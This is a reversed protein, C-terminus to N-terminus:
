YVPQPFTRKWVLWTFTMYVVGGFLARLYTFTPSNTIPTFDFPIATGTDSWQGSNVDVTMLPINVTGAMAGGSGVGNTDDRPSIAPRAGHWHPAIQKLRDATTDWGGPPAQGALLTPIDTSTDPPAPTTLSNPTFTTGFGQVYTVPGWNVFCQVNQEMESAGAPDPSWLDHVGQQFVTNLNTSTMGLQQQLQGLGTRLLNTLVPGNLQSAAMAVQNAYSIVESLWGSPIGISGIGPIGISLDGPLNPTTSTGVITGGVTYTVEGLPGYVGGSVSTVMVWVAYIGPGDSSSPSLFTSANYAGSTSVCNGSAGFAGIYYSGPGCTDFGPLSYSSSAGTSENLVFLQVSQAPDTGNESVSVAVTLVANSTSPTITVSGDWSSQAMLPVAVFLLCLPFCVRVVWSWGRGILRSMSVFWGKRLAVRFFIPWGLLNAFLWLFGLM